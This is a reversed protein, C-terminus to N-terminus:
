SMKYGDLKLENQKNHHTSQNPITFLTQHHLHFTAMLVIYSLLMVGDLKPENYKNHYTSQHPITVLTPHSLQFIVMLVRYTLEYIWENKM